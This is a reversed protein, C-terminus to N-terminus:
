RAFYRPLAYRLGIILARAREAVSLTMGRSLLAQLRDYPGEEDGHAVTSDPSDRSGLIPTVQPKAIM